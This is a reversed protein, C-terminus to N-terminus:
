NLQECRHTCIGYILEQGMLDAFWSWPFQALVAPPLMSLSALTKYTGAKCVHSIFLEFHMVWLLHPCSWSSLPSSLPKPLGTTQFAEQGEHKNSGQAYLCDEAPAWPTFFNFIRGTVRAFCFLFAFGCIGWATWIFTTFGCSTWPRSSPFSFIQLFLLLDSETSSNLEGFWVM